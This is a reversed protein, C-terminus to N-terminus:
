FLYEPELVAGYNVDRDSYPFTVTEFVGTATRMVARATGLVPVVGVLYQLPRGEKLKQDFTRPIEAWGFLINSLGRGLKTLGKELGTPQPIDGDLRYIYTQKFTTTQAYSLTGQCLIAVLIVAGVIKIWTKM